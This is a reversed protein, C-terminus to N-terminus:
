RHCSKTYLTSQGSVEKECLGLSDEFENQQTFSMLAYRKKLIKEAMKRGLIQDIFKINCPSVAKELRITPNVFGKEALELLASKENKAIKESLKIMTADIQKQAEIVHTKRMREDKLNWWNDKGFIPEFNFGGIHYKENSTQYVVSSLINLQPELINISDLFMVVFLFNHVQKEMRKKEDNYKWGLEEYKACVDKRFATCIEKNSEMKFGGVEMLGFCM